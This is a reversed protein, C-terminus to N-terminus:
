CYWVNMVVDDYLLLVIDEVEGFSVVDGAKRLREGDCFEGGAEGTAFFASGAGALGVFAGTSSM